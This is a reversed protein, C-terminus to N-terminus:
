ESTLYKEKVEQALGARAKGEHELGKLLEVVLEWRPYPHYSLFESFIQRRGEKGIGYKSVLENYTACPIDLYPGGYMVYPVHDFIGGRGPMELYPEDLIGARGPMQVGDTALLMTETTLTPDSTFLINCNLLLM